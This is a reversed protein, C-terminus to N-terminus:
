ISRQEPLWLRLIDFIGSYQIVLKITELKPIVIKAKEHKKGFLIHFEVQSM